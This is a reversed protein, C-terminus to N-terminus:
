LDLILIIYDIDGALFLHSRALYTPPILGFATGVQITFKCNLIKSKAFDPHERQNEIEELSWVPRQTLDDITLRVGIRKEGTQLLTVQTKM